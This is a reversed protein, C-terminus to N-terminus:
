VLSVVRVVGETPDQDSNDLAQRYGIDPMIEPIDSPIGYTGDHLYESPCLAILRSM